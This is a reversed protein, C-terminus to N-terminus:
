KLPKEAARREVPAGPRASPGEEGGLRQMARQATKRVEPDLDCLMERLPIVVRSLGIDGLASAARARKAPNEDKLVLLLPEVAVEGMQGLVSAALFGLKEDGLMAILPYVARTDKIQKMSCVTAMRVDTSEETKLSDLCGELIRNGMGDLVYQKWHNLLPDSGRRLLPRLNADGFKRLAMVSIWRVDPDSLGNVLAEVSSPEAIAMLAAVATVKVEKEKDRMAEELLPVAARTRAKRLATAASIKQLANGERLLRFLLPQAAPMMRSAAENAAERVSPDPDDFRDGVDPLVDPNNTEGLAEVAYFRVAASPDSLGKRLYTRTEPTGLMGVERMATARVDANGYTLLSTLTAIGPPGFRTLSAVATDRVLPSDSDFKTAVAQLGEEGGFQAVAQIAQIQVTRDPDSLAKRIAPLAERAELQRLIFLANRRVAPSKDSLARITPSVAPAGINILAGSVLWRVDEEGVIELLPTVADAGIEVLRSVAHTRIDPDGDRLFPIVGRSGLVGKLDAAADLRAMRASQSLSELNEEDAVAPRCPIASFAIAALLL